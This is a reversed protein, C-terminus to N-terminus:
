SGNAKRRLFSMTEFVHRPPLTVLDFTRSGPGQPPRKQAKQWRRESAAALQKFVDGLASRPRWILALTRGPPPKTFPRIELQIRRLDFPFSISM